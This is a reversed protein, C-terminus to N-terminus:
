DGGPLIAVETVRKTESDITFATFPHNTSNIPHGCHGPDTSPSTLVGHTFGDGDCSVNVRKRLQGLTTGVGAGSATRYRPSHTIIAIAYKQGRHAYYGVYIGAQPYFSFAGRLHDPSKSVGPGLAADVRDKREGFTVVGIRHDLGIRHLAPDKARRVATTTESGTAAHHSAGCGLEALVAVMLVATLALRYAM